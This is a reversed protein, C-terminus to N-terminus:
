AIGISEARALRQLLMTAMPNAKVRVGGYESFGVVGNRIERQELIDAAMIKVAEYYRDPLASWGWTATVSVVAKAGDPSWNSGLLRITRYPAYDGARTLGNVPELQYDSSSVAVGSQTVATVTTCDHIDLVDSLRPVYLRASATGGAVTFVRGCFDNAFEEAADIAAQVVAESIGNFTDKWERFTNVTLNSM